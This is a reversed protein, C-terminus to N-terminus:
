WKRIALRLKGWFINDFSSPGATSEGSADGHRVVVLNLSPVVYIKKDDAGMAMIMDTPAQPVMPGKIISQSLPLMYSPKGNLWTLYGYSQNLQQSTHSIAQMYSKDSLISAGNWNGQNLLLLGFRAMDRTNLMLNHNTWDSNKMGIKDSLKTKTFASFSVGSAEEIVNHLLRYPANHYAWRKGADAKFTLCEPDTCSENDFEDNLGTTMTLQHRITILQEKDASLRTFGTGLYNATKDNINLLKEQQAIGVLVATVTKGVSNIPYKSDKNWNNWYNETVIRGNHLIIFGYANSEGVYKIVEQLKAEDWDISSATQSEWSNSGNPPFYM